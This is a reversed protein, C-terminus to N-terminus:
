IILDCFRSARRVEYVQLWSLLIKPIQDLNPIPALKLASAATQLILRSAVIITKKGGGPPVVSSSSTRDISSPTDSKVGIHGLPPHLTGTNGHVIRESPMVHTIDMGGELLVRSPSLGRSPLNHTSPDSQRPDFSKSQDVHTPDPSPSRSLLKAISHRASWRQKRGRSSGSTTLPKLRPRDSGGHDTSTTADSETPATTIQLNPVSTSPRSPGGPPAPSHGRKSFKFRNFM